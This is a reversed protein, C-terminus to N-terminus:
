QEKRQKDLAIAYGDPADAVKRAPPTPSTPHSRRVSPNQPTQEKKLVAAYPDPPNAYVDGPKQGLARVTARARATSASERAATPTSAKLAELEEHTVTRVGTRARQAANEEAITM